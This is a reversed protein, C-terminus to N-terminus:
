CLLPGYLNQMLHPGTQISLSVIKMMKENCLVSITKKEDYQVDHVSAMSKHTNRSMDM